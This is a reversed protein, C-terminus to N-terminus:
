LRLKSSITIDMTASYTTEETPLSGTFEINAQLCEGPGPILGLIDVEQNQPPALDFATVDSQGTLNGSLSASEDGKTFTLTFVDLFDFNGATATFSIEDLTVSEIKLLGGARGLADRVEQELAGLDPLDCVQPLNFSLKDNSKFVEPITADTAVPLTITVPPLDIEIGFCGTLALAPTIVAVAVARRFLSNLM